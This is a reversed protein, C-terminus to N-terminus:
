TLRWREPLAGNAFYAECDGCITVEHHQHGDDKPVLTARTRHGAILTGCTACPTRGFSAEDGSLAVAHHEGLKDRVSSEFDTMPDTEPSTM